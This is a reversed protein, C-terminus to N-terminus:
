TTLLIHEQRAGSFSGDGCRPLLLSLDVEATILSYDLCTLCIPKLESAKEYPLQGQAARYRSLVRNANIHILRSTWSLCFLVFWFSGGLEM